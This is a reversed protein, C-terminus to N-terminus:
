GPGSLSQRLAALIGGARRPLFRRRIAHDAIFALGILGFSGFNVFLSWVRLSAVLFLLLIIAALLAYIITWVVTAWRTYAIEVPALPGHLKTTLQTCIPVRGGFLSRGFSLAVLAYAGCQQVVDAWEYYKTFVPWYHILLLGSLVVISSALLPHSWRWLMVAGILLVPAISLGAGLGRADPATNSYYSSTAYGVIIAAVVALHTFNARSAPAQTPPSANFETSL